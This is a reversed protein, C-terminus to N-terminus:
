FVLNRVTNISYAVSAIGDEGPNDHEVFYHEFGATDAHSFLKAFDITGRGVDVMNGDPAMDKVHLMKFRGPHKNFYAVPDAGARHIWYLDLEMDVLEPDTEDLIFDFPILGDTEIFEFDHNHYGMKLGAARCAEGARNLTEVLQQYHALSRETPQLFPIVIYRQGLTAAYDIEAQLNNRIAAWQIHAAPSTLGNADLARRVDSASRGFYGAFEMDRYGLEAVRALTGEFDRGMENRLTYLQLGVREVRRGQAHLAFPQSALGALSIGLFRRRSWGRPTRDSHNHGM